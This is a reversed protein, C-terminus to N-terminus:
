GKSHRSRISFFIIAGIAVGCTNLILDDVDSHREYFFLQALEILLSFGAGAMIVKKISDLEKFCAPWVIGVPIFMTINGIINLIWGDYRDYLCYFPILHIKETSNKSFDIKLTDLKGDVLHFGFLVFRAIVILCVYVLLLQLERKVSFDRSKLAVIIRTIIWVATIFILIQTFTFEIM